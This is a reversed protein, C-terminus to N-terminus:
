APPLPASGHRLHKRRFRVAAPLRGHRVARGAPGRGATASRGAAQREAAVITDYEALSLCVPKECLVV